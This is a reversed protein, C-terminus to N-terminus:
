ILTFWEDDRESGGDWFEGNMIGDVAASGVYRFGDEYPRLVAASPSGSFVVVLDDQKTSHSGIALHEANEAPGGIIRFVTKWGANFLQQIVQQMELSLLYNGISVFSWRKDHPAALTLPTSQDHHNKGSKSVNVLISVYAVVFDLSAAGTFSAKTSVQQALLIAQTMARLVTGEDGHPTASKAVDFWTGICDILAGIYQGTQIAGGGILNTSADTMWPLGVAVAVGLRRGKVMLRTAQPELVYEYRSEGSVRSKSTSGVVMHPPNSPSWRRMCGALNPVWSPLRHQEWGSSENVSLLMELSNDHNIIARAVETYVMSLPKQYDPTPLTIGFRKCVGYFGHVKDEPRTAEYVTGPYLLISSATLGFSSPPEGEGIRRIFEQLTDHWDLYSKWHFSMATSHLKSYPLRTFDAAVVITKLQMMHKGCYFMVSKGLAVEQVVWIRMFWPLRFIGHLKGYPFEPTCELIEDALSEYKRRCIEQQPGPLKAGLYPGVLSKLAECAADSAADGEGLHVNVQEAASYIRDMLAVQAGREALANPTNAQNICISDVWIMREFKGRLMRRLASGCNTTIRLIKGDITISDCPDPDGWTYSLAFYKPPSNLSAEVLSGQLSLGTYSVDGESMPRRLKLIRFSSPSRLPSYEFATSNGVSAPTPQVHQQYQSDQWEVARSESVQPGRALRKLLRRM